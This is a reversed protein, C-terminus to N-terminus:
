RTLRFPPLKNPGKAAVEIQLDTKNLDAYKTPLLNKGVDYEGNKLVPKYWQLTVKYRGAPAGDDTRYTKVRFSGDREVVASPRPRTLADPGVPHLVVHAGDPAKGQYVVKGEVPFVPLLRPQRGCGVTAILALAIATAALLRPRNPKTSHSLM